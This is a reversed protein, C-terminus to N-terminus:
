FLSQLRVLIKNDRGSQGGIDFLLYDLQVKLDHGKVYYNLGFTWVDTSNGAIEINPDFSEFKIVGQLKNPLIYYSGQAYWGEAEVASFPLNNDPEFKTRFYETWIDLQGFHFQGDASGGIRQGAFTNDLAVTEPTSDFRFDNLGTISNDDSVFGDVGLSVNAEQEFIKGQWPIGGVRGVYMFSDNDNATTNIGNGNFVGASYFLRKELVDGTVMAGIQRGVTLRDNPLSREITYLRPDAYLQEFGFPTKFQGVRINAWDFQNYNVYGDTLQARLGTQEGLTGTLDLELKFDFHEL